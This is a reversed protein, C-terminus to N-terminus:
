YVDNYLEEICLEEGTATHTSFGQALRTVRAAMDSQAKLIAAMCQNAAILEQM